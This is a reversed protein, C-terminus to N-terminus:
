VTGGPNSQISFGGNDGAIIDGNVLQDPFRPM